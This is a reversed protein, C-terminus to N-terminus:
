GLVNDPVRYKAIVPFSSSLFEENGTVQAGIDTQRAVAHFLAPSVDMSVPGPNECDTRHHRSQACARLRNANDRQESLFGVRFLIQM